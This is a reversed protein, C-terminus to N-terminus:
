FASIPGNLSSNSELIVLSIKSSSSFGWFTITSLMVSAKFTINLSTSSFLSLIPNSLVFLCHISNVVSLLSVKVSAILSTSSCV